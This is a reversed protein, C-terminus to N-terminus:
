RLLNNSRFSYWGDSAVIVHDHVKIGVANALWGLLRTVEIDQASPTPNGGPHNHALIISAADLELARKIVERLHLDARDLLGSTVLEDKLLRNQTDLYLTRITEVRHHGQVAILYNIVDSLSSIM